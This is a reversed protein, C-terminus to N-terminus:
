HGLRQIVYMIKAKNLENYIVGWTWNVSLPVSKCLSLIVLLYSGSPIMRLGLM